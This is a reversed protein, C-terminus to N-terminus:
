NEEKLEKKSDANKTAFYLSWAFGTKMQHKALRALANKHIPNEVLEKFEQWTCSFDLTEKVKGKGKIGLLECISSPFSEGKDFGYLSLSLGKGSKKSCQGTKLLYGYTDFSPDIGDGQAGAKEFRFRVVAEQFPSFQKNKTVKVKAYRYRDTGSKDWSPESDVQGKGEDNDNGSTKFFDKNVTSLSISGYRARLSSYFKAADGCPEYEPNGFMVGIAKRLQNTYLLVARKRKLKNVVLPFSDSLARALQAIPSSTDKEDKAEPVLAKLSDIIFVISAKGEQERSVLSNKTDQTYSYFWKGEKTKIIDPMAKMIRSAHRFVNECTNVPVFYFLGAKTVKGDSDVIGVYYDIGHGTKKFVIRDLYDFDLANEADYFVTPIGLRLSEAITELAGTTKGSAELGFNSIARGVGYGGGTILDLVLSGTGLAWEIKGSATLTVAKMDLSSGEEEISKALTMIYEPVKPTKEKVKKTM